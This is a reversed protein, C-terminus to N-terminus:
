FHPMPYAQFFISKNYILKIIYYLYNRYPTLGECMLYRKTNKTQSIGRVFRM